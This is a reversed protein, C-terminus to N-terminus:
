QPEVITGMFLVTGTQQDRIAFFFPRDVMMQFPGGSVVSTVSVSISTVAAAETGAENVEVFTKHKVQSIHTETESLGSFDAQNADFATSMGLASLAEKLDVEYELKFKPLGVTGQRRSFRNMWTQWNEATLTQQFAALSSTAKPLFVYLSMRGSGYPLSVAQFEPTEYYAYRDSQWM